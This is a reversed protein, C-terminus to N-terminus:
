SPLLVRKLLLDIHGCHAAVNWGRNEGTQCQAEGSMGAIQM